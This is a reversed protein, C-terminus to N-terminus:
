LTGKVTNSILVIDEDTVHPGVPLVLGHDYAHQANPFHQTSAYPPQGPLPKFVRRYNIGAGCLAMITKLINPVEAVFVWEGRGPLGESKYGDVCRARDAILEDYRELQACGIASQINTLRYNLGPVEFDYEGGGPIFGGNKYLNMVRAMEPDTAVVCGGEGTTIHKNAFFSFCAIRGEAGRPFSECADLVIPIDVPDYPPTSEMGYLNVPIAAAAYAATGRRAADWDIQWDEGVDVFVPHAGCHLVVSATAGFTLAPVIVEDGRGVGLALLAIHLAATGSSCPVVLGRDVGLREALMSHFRDVYEGQSSVWTSEMADDVLARELPGINPRAVPIMM